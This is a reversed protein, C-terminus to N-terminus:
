EQGNHVFMVDDVLGSTCLMAVGSCFLALGRSYTVHVFNTFSPSIYNRLHARLFVSGCLCVHLCESVTMM